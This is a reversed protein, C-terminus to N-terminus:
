LVCLWVFPIAFALILFIRAYKRSGLKEQLETNSYEKM